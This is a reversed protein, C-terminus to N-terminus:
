VMRSFRRQEGRMPLYHDFVMAIARVFYWGKETVVFGTETLSILGEVAMGSLQECEASFYTRFVLGHQAGFQEVDLAGDCMIATIAARRMM